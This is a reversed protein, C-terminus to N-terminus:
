LTQRGVFLEYVILFLCQSANYGRGEMDLPVHQCSFSFPKQRQHIEMSGKCNLLSVMSDSDIEEKCLGYVSVNM